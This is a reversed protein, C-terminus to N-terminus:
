LYFKNGCSCLSRRNQMEFMMKRVFALYDLCRIRIRVCCIFICQFHSNVNAICFFILNKNDLIVMIHFAAAIGHFIWLTIRSIRNYPYLRTKIFRIINRKRLNRAISFIIYSYLISRVQQRCCKTNCNKQKLLSFSFLFLPICMRDHM